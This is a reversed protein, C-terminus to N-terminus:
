AKELKARIGWAADLGSVPDPVPGILANCNVGKGALFKDNGEHGLGRPLAVLGPMIGNSLYVRVEARAKPTSLVALGCESIGLAKATEPNVQVLSHNKKLVSDEVTKMVFPPNGLFGSTLRMSDYPLLVLPFDSKSGEPELPNFDPLGKNGKSEANGLAKVAFEFKKSDTPFAKEWGDPEYEKDVWYGDELLTEWKDGMTQKLCEEYNDWPFAGAISGGLAKAMSIVTDGVNKTNTLPPVVPKVLGIFPKTFGPPASIDEYRELYTHNPLILDANLATEDMFPSCSIVLPIKDFATKVAKSDPQSYIPNAGSVFLVELPSTEAINIVEFLRNLLSRAHPFKKTGAGDVRGTQIGKSAIGDVEIEPWVIYDSEPIAIVGGKHNISGVLANLAHVAMCDAIPGPTSGAGLGYFAVPKSAKAFDRALSAIKAPDIGTTKSVAEPSYEDLVLQKFGKQNGGKEDTWAEFGFAHNEVFTEDYLSEKIIVHALGLALTGQTGPVIPIWKNAKAATNSMRPEIQVVTTKKDKWASHAQIMRVPAGWGDLLGTGFSLVFDTNELDFGASGQVGNMYHLVTEYSNEVSPVRFLNPSGYAALFRSFLTPITGQDTGLLAGVSSAKGKSRLDSLKKNVEDLAQIWSIKQWKGQGREGVRKLPAPIRKPGYLMQLGSIGLSCIGGSNVPHDAMGEIKVARNDVKRVTIGCGGSCLSCASNVYSVEGEQPVPTWPWNQSWISSDDTLKWPLPSLTTGVAGGIGFALFSRRDIKM